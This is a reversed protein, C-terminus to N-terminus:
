DLNILKGLKYEWEGLIPKMGGWDYFTFESFYLDDNINFFDVRIFRQNQSLKEAFEKMKNFNKPKAYEPKKRSYGHSIDIPNFDMDYYNEEIVDGKNTIYMYMPKGSFCYFKYDKIEELSENELYKEAMIMPKVNKYPYERLLWYWNSKLIKNNFRKELQMYDICRKDVLIGKRSDHNTKIFFKEPLKNFDIEEIKEWIGYCPVVYKEGILDSVYQKVRYKDVMVSYLPNRDNLKLWNLKENFGKPSNLSLTRGFHLKYLLSIYKEDRFIRGYKILLCILIKKLIM